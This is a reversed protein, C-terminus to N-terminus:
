DKNEELIVVKRGDIKLRNKALLELALPYIEHEKQLIRESLSDVTDSDYVPVAKQMIIPGSDLGEDVFHVTCGSIKVGYEIAQKQAHLGPFAPLLSPHINLIREPFAKVFNSGLLRMFGALCVTDVGKAKLFEALAQDYQTRQPYHEPLFTYAPVNLENAKQLCLANSQDSVVMVLNVPLNRDRIAEILAVMNSGRGSALIALNLM